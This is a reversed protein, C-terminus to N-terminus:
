ADADDDEEDDRRVSPGVLLVPCRARRVLGGAVSGLVAQRFGSHGHTGAVVIAAELKAAADALAEAVDDDHLTDWEPALGAHRLRRIPGQIAASTVVDSLAVGIDPPEVIVLWPVADLQRSWTAAAAVATEGPPSGDVCVQVVDLRAPVTARPGVILVPEGSRAVVGAAVSGLADDLLGAHGHSTLSLVVGPEALATLAGAVDDSPLVMRRAPRIGADRCVEDLWARDAWTDQGPASITVVSVAAGAAEALAAVPPLADLSRTSGDLCILLERIM